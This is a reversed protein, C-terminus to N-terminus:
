LDIEPQNIQKLGKQRLKLYQQKEKERDYTFQCVQRSLISGKKMLQGYDEKLHINGTIVNLDVSLKNSLSLTGNSLLAIKNDTTLEHAFISDPVLEIVNASPLYPLHLKQKNYHDRVRIFASLEPNLIDMYFLNRNLFRCSELPIHNLKYNKVGELRGFVVKGNGPILHLNKLHDFPIKLNVLLDIKQHDTLEQGNIHSPLAHILTNPSAIDGAFFRKYVPDCTDLQLISKPSVAKM